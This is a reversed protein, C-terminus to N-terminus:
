TSFFSFCSVSPSIRCTRECFEALRAKRDACSRRKERFSLVFPIWSVAYVIVAVLRHYPYLIRSAIIVFAVLVLLWTPGLNRVIHNM